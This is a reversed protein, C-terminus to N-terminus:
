HSLALAAQTPQAISEMICLMAVRQSGNLAIPITKDPVM